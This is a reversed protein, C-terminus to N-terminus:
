SSIICIPGFLWTAYSAVVFEVVIVDRAAIVVDCRGIGIASLLRMTVLHM